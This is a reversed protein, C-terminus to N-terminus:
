AAGAADGSPEDLVALEVLARQLFARDPTEALEQAILTACRLCEDGVLLRGVRRRHLGLRILGLGLLLGGGIGAGWVSLLALLPLRRLGIGTSVLVENRFGRGLLEHLVEEPLSRNIQMRASFEPREYRVWGARIALIVSIASGCERLSGANRGCRLLVRQRM